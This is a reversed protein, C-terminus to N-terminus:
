EAPQAAGYGFITGAIFLVGGYLQLKAATGIDAAFVVQSLLALGLAVLM